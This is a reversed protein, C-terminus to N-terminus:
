EFKLMKTNELIFKRFRECSGDAEAIWLHTEGNLLIGSKITYSSYVIDHQTIKLSKEENFFIYAMNIPDERMHTFGAVWIERIFPDKEILIKEGHNM